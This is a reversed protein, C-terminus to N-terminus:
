KRFTGKLILPTRIGPQIEGSVVFVQNGISVANTTVPIPYSCDFLDVLANMDTSVVRLKRSFGPAQSIDAFNGGSRGTDFIKDEGYPITTGAM